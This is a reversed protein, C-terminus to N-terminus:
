ISMGPPLVLEYNGAANKQLRPQTKDPIPDRNAIEARVVEQVMPANAASSSQLEERVTQQVKPLFKDLLMKLLMDLFSPAPASPNPLPDPLPTNNPPVKIGLRPLIYVSVIGMAIYLLSNVDM